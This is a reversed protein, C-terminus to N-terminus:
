INVYTSNFNHTNQTMIYVENGVKPWLWFLHSLWQRLPYLHCSWAAQWICGAPQSRAAWLVKWCLTQLWCQPFIESYPWWSAIWFVLSMWFMWLPPVIYLLFIPFVLYAWATLELVFTFTDNHLFVLFCRESGLEVGLCNQKAQPWKCKLSFLIIGISLM